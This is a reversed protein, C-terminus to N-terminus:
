RIIIVKERRRRRGRGDRRRRRKSAVVAVTVVAIFLIVGVAIWFGPVDSKHALSFTTKGATLASLLVFTFLSSM